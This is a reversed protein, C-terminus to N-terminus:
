IVERNNLISRRMGMERDRRAEAVEDKPLFRGEQQILRRARTISESATGKQIFEVGFNDFDIKDITKWYFLLLLKDDNRADEVASLISEVNQKVTRKNMTKM